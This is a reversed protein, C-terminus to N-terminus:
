VSSAKSPAALTNESSALLVIGIFVNKMLGAKRKITVSEAGKLPLM